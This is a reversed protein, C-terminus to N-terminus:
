IISFSVNWIILPIYLTRIRALNGILAALYFFITITSVGTYYYHRFYTQIAIDLGTILLGLILVFLAAHGLDFSCYKMRNAERLKEQIELFEPPVDLVSVSTKPRDTILTPSSSAQNSSQSTQPVNSDSVRSWESWVFSSKKRGVIIPASPKRDVEREFPLIEGSKKAETDEM